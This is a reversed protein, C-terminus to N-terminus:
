FVVLKIPLVYSMIGLGVEYQILTVQPSYMPAQLGTHTGPCSKAAGCKIRLQPFRIKDSCQVRTLSISTVVQRRTRDEHYSYAHNSIVRAIGPYAWAQLRRHPQIVTKTWPYHQYKNQIHIYLKQLRHPLMIM